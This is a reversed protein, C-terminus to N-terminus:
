LRPDEDPHALLRYGLFVNKPVAGAIKKFPLCPVGLQVVLANKLASPSVAHGKLDDHRAFAARAQALTFHAGHEARLYNTVFLHVVNNDDLYEKGAAAVAAPMRFAYAHDFVDLLSRLLEMKYVPDTAFRAMLAADRPYMHRAECVQDPEVFMARYDVKRLRRRIGQDAGDIRPTKNCMAHLKFMPVYERITNSYLLRYQVREGGSLDKLIGSNITDEQNPETCYMIRAGRWTALEPMPKGPSPRVKATLVEIGFKKIYDGGASGLIEFFASKGNGAGDHQGSHIHVYNGCPDGYLQRALMRMMYERQEPDPHVTAWYRAVEAAAAATTADADAAEVYDYGVSLSVRDEPRGARFRRERLDWVGNDFGLLNPDADLTDAFTRDFMFERLERLVSDKFHADRLKFSVTNLLACQEQEKSRGRTSRSASDELPAAMSIDMIAQTFHERVVASLAARAEAGKEDQVWRAGDFAYWLNGDASACVHRDRLLKHAIAAVANHSGDCKAMDESVRAGVIRRYEVPNDERCWRHLSGVGLGEDRMDAWARECEGAVFKDACRRSFEVWAPLLAAADINHLCWGVRMWPDYHAARDDSLARVMKIVEAHAGSSGGRSTSSTARRPVPVPVSRASDGECRQQQQQEALRRPVYTPVEIPEVDDDLWTITADRLAVGARLPALVSQPKSLKSSGMLRMERDNSYVAGDVLKGVGDPDLTRLRQMLQFAGHADSQHNSRFVYQPAHTSVVLHLSMKAQNPSHTWVFAEDPLAPIHYDEAFVRRVLDQTRAVIAELTECGPPLTDGDIDLYPKCPRGQQIIEFVHRDQPALRELHRAAEEWTAYCGFNHYGDPFKAADPAPTAVQVMCEPPGGAVHARAWAQMAAKSEKGGFYTTGLMCREFAPAARPAPTTPSSAM